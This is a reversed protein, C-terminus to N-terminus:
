QPIYWPNLNLNCTSSNPKRPNCKLAPYIIELRKFPDYHRPFTSLYIGSV